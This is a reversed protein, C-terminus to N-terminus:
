FDSPPTSLLGALVLVTKTEFYYFSYFLIVKQSIIKHAQVNQMREM